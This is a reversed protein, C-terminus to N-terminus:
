KPYVIQNSVYEEKNKYYLAGKPIYMKVILDGEETSMNNALEKTKKSHFANSTIQMYADQTLNGYYFTGDFPTTETYEFGKTWPETKGDIWLSHLWGKGGAGLCKWVEIDKRAKKPNPKEGKFNLTFCM